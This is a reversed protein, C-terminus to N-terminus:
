MYAKALVLIAVLATLTLAQLLIAVNLDSMRRETFQSLDPLGEEGIGSAADQARRAIEQYGQDLGRDLRAVRGVVTWACSGVPTYFFGISRELRGAARVLGWAGAQLPKYVLSEVSLNPPRRNLIGLRSGALYICTGLIFPVMVDRLNSWQFLDAHALHDLGYQYGLSAAAPLVAVNIVQQPFFGVLLILLSLAHLVAGSIRPPTVTRQAPAGLFVHGLKLFYVVTFSSGVVFVKEAVLLWALHNEYYAEALAHHILTKSAFGSFGPLGTIAGFVALFAISAPLYRRMGRIRTVSTEHTIMYLYGVMLFAATKFVIHNLIHLFAGGFGTAGEAGLVTAAGIGTVIYGVQSVSSYALIRKANDQFVAMVGGSVLTVLGIGLLLAGSNLAWPGHGAPNGPVLVLLFMRLIGYAGAKILVGSLVASAPAPAVPHARPLWIHLPFVGAKVGFGLVVLITAMELYGASVLATGHRAALDLGGAHGLVMVAFVLCLGSAVGMFLFLRGASLAEPDENHVVLAYSAFTMLEFFVFLTFLDGALFVGLTAGMTFVMFSWYRPLSREHKMYDLSFLLALSWATAGVLAVSAGVADARLLIGYGVASLRAEVGGRTALALLFAGMGAAFLGTAVALIAGARKKRAAVAYVPFAMIM